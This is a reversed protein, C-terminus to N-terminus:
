RWNKLRSKNVHLMNNEPLLDLPDLPIGNSRIEFHLHSGTSNGSSGVLGIIQGQKVFDGEKVYNVSNHAYRTIFNNRHEIRIERGYGGAYGVSIVKGSKAARVITGRPSPMDLGEHLQGWRIGFVSTLLTIGKVPWIFQDEKCRIEERKIGNAELDRCCQESYPFFSYAGILGRYNRTGNVRMVESLNTSIRSITQDLQNKTNVKMWKGVKGRYEQIQENDLLVSVEAFLPVCLTLTLVLVSTFTKKM